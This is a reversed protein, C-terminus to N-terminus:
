SDSRIDAGKDTTENRRISKPKVSTKRASTEKIAKVVNQECDHKDFQMTM